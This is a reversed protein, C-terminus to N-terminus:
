QTMRSKDLTERATRDKKDASGSWAAAMMEDQSTYDWCPPRVM